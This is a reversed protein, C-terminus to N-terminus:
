KLDNALRGTIEMAARRPNTRGQLLDDILKELYDGNDIQNIDQGAGGM